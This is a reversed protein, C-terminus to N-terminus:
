QDGIVPPCPVLVFLVFFYYDKRASNNADFATFPGLIAVALIKFHISPFKDNM